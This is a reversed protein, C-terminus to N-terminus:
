HPKGDIPKNLVASLWAPVPEGREARERLQQQLDYHETKDAAGVGHLYRMGERFVLIGVAQAASIQEPALTGANFHHVFAADNCSWAMRVGHPGDPLDQDDIVITFRAM